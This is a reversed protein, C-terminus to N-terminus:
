VLLEFEDMVLASFQISRFSDLNEDNCFLMSLFIMYGVICAILTIKTYFSLYQLGRCSQGSHCLKNLGNIHGFVVIFLFQKTHYFKLVRVFILKSFKLFHEFQVGELEIIQHV